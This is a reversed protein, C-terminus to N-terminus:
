RRAAQHGGEDADRALKAEEQELLREVTDRKEPDLEKALMQRYLRVNQLAVYNM